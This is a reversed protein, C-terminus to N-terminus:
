VPQVAHGANQHLAALLRFKLDDRIRRSHQPCVHRQLVNEIRHIVRIQDIRGAQEAAIM